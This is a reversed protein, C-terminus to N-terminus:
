AASDFTLHSIISTPRGVTQAVPSGSVARNWLDILQEPEADAAVTGSIELAGFGPNGEEALGAWRLINDFSGTVRVNLTRIEIGALTAHLVMGDTICAGVASLLYEHPTPASDHGTLDAPEDFAITHSRVRADVRFGGRWTTTATWPGSFRGVRDPDRMQEALAARHEFGIGNVADADAERHETM